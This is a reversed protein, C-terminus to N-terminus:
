KVDFRGYRLHWAKVELVFVRLNRRNKEIILRPDNMSGFTGFDGLASAPQYTTASEKM